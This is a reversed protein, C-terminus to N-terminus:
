TCRIARKSSGSLVVTERGEAGFWEATRPGKEGSPSMGVSGTSSELQYFNQWRSSIGGSRRPAGRPLNFRPDVPSRPLRRLFHVGLKDAIEEQTFEALHLRMAQRRREALAKGTCRKKAM